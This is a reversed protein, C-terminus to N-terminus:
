AGSASGRTARYWRFLALAADIGGWRPIWGLRERAAKTDLYYDRGAIAYQERRLPSRHARELLWLGAEALMAPATRFTSRSGSDAILATIWERMTPVSAAGCNYVAHADGGQGALLVLRACDEPAALEQRNQGSGILPIPHGQLIRDFLRTVVGTRGPGYLAPPRVIVTRLGQGHAAEILREAELKSRGYPGLPSRPHDERLPVNRPLGYVMSTSAFVFMSAEAQRAADLARRTGEVNVAHFPLGYTTPALTSHYQCAALHVVTRAGDFASRLDDHRLDLRHSRVAGGGADPPADMDVVRIDPCGCEALLRVVDRGLLGAGGTVVVPADYRIPPQVPPTVLQSEGM